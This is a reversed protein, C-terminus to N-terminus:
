MNTNIGTGARFCTAWREPRTVYAETFYANFRPYSEELWSCFDHLLKRFTAKNVELQLTKLARFVEAVDEQSKSM